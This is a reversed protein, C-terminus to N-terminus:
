AKANKQSSPSATGAGARAVVEHIEIATIEKNSNDNRESFEEWFSQQSSQPIELHAMVLLFCFILFTTKAM